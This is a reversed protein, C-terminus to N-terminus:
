NRGRRLRWLFPVCVLGALVLSSPEPVATIEGVSSWFIPATGNAIQPFRQFNDAGLYQVFQAGTGRNQVGVGWGATANVVFTNPTWSYNSNRGILLFGRDGLNIQDIIDQATANDPVDWSLLASTQVAEFVLPLSNPTKMPINTPM